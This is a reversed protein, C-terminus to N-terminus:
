RKLVKKTIVGNKTFAKIIMISSPYKSLDIESITSEELLLGTMSLLQIKNIDRTSKICILNTAPNPYILLDDEIPELVPVLPPGVDGLKFIASTQGDFASFYLTDDLVVLEQYLEEKFFASREGPYLDEVMVTGSETGDSEWLEYGHIGDDATFYLKGGAVRFNDPNSSGTLNINKVLETGAVTGNSSYLEWDGSSNALSFYAKSNFEIIESRRISSVYNTPDSVQDVLITGIKTGDSFYVQNGTLYNSYYFVGFSTSSLHGVTVSGVTLTDLQAGDFKLLQNPASSKFFIDNNYATLAEIYLSEYIFTPSADGETWYWIAYPGAASSTFYLTDNVELTEHAQIVTIVEEYNGNEYTKAVDLLVLLYNGSEGDYINGVLYKDLYTGLAEFSYDSTGSQWLLKVFEGSSDFVYVKNNQKWFTQNNLEITASNILHFDNGVEDKVKKIDHQLGNSHVLTELPWYRQWYLESASSKLNTRGTHVPQIDFGLNTLNTGNQDSSYYGTNEYGNFGSPDESGAFLIKNNIEGLVLHYDDIPSINVQIGNKFLNNEVIYYVDNGSKFYEHQDIDENSIEVTGIETGDTMFGVRNGSSNKANFYLENGAGIALFQPEGSNGIGPYLDLVPSAINENENLKWLEEGTPNGGHYSSGSIYLIDQGPYLIKAELNTEIGVITDIATSNGGYKLAYRSTPSSTTKAIFCLYDNFLVLSQPNSGGTFSHNTVMETNEFVNDCKYLETKGSSLGSFFLSDHYIIPQSYFEMDTSWKEVLDSQGPTRYIGDQRVNFYLTDKYVIFYELNWFDRFIEETTGNGLGDSKYLVDHATERNTFYFSNSTEFYMTEYSSCQGINSIAYVKEVTSGNTKYLVRGTFRDCSTFYYNGNYEYGGLYDSYMSPSYSTLDQVIDLQEISQAQSGISSLVVILKILPLNFKM